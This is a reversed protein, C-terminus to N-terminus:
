RTLGESFCVCIWFPVPIRDVPTCNNGKITEQVKGKLNERVRCIRIPRLSLRPDPFISSCSRTHTHLREPGPWTAAFSFTGWKSWVCKFGPIMWVIGSGNWHFLDWCASHSVTIFAWHVETSSFVQRSTPQQSVSEHSSSKCGDNLADIRWPFTTWFRWLSEWDRFVHNLVQFCFGEFNICM